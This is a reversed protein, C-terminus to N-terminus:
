GRHVILLKHAEEVDSRKRIRM